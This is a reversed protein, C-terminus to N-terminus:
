DNTHHRFLGDDTLIGNRYSPVSKTLDPTMCFPICDDLGKDRLRKRQAAKEIFDTPNKEALRWLDTAIQVSDCITSYKGSLLLREAIAGACLTDEINVKNKWAACLLIVDRDSAELHRCLASINVFAGILIDHAKGVM